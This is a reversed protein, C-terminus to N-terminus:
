AVSYKNKRRIPITIKSIEDKNYQGEAKLVHIKLGGEVKKTNIVALEVFITDQPSVIFETNKLGNEAAEAIARLYETLEKGEVEM